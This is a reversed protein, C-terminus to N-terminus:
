PVVAFGRVKDYGEQIVEIANTQFKHGAWWSELWSSSGVTPIGDLQRRNTLAGSPSIM